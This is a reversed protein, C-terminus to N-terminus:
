RSFSSSTFDLSTTLPKSCSQVSAKVQEGVGESEVKSVRSVSGNDHLQFMVLPSTKEENRCAASSSSTCTM